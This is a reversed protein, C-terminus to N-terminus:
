IRPRRMYLLVDGYTGASINHIDHSVDYNTGLKSSWKGTILQKAAHKPDNENKGFVAIKEWPLDLTGDQCVKYGITEYLQRFSDVHNIRPLGPPWYYLVEPFAFQPFPYPWYPRTSDGYVYAICNYIPTIASTVQFPQIFSRPFDPHSFNM